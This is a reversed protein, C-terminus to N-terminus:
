QRKNEAVPNCSSCPVGSQCLGCGAYKGIYGPGHEGDLWSKQKTYLMDLCKLKDHGKESIAGAPCRLICKGCKEGAYFLCNALHSKYPRISPKLKLGAVVSGLRMAMGKSTIFGENLSFTELGAAYAVHRHSWNSAFGGPLMIIKLFSAGDPAFAYSGMSQLLSVLHNSLEKIFAQGNWRTHNWRLSPGKKEKANARVTERNVPLVFSIVSVDPPLPAEEKMTEALHKVLIERPSFHEAHVVKKYEEFLPDDGDAFGVLPEEFIFEGDFSDLRNASSEQAFRIIAEKIFIEPKAEFRKKIQKDM